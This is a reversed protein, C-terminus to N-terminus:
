MIELATGGDGIVAGPRYLEAIANRLSQDTAMELYAKGKASIKSDVYNSGYFQIDLSFQLSRNSSLGGTLGLNPFHGSYAKIGM